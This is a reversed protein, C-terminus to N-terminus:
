RRSQGSTNANETYNKFESVFQIVTTADGTCEAEEVNASVALPHSVEARVFSYTSPM